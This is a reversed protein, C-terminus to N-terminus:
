LFVRSLMNLMRGEYSNGKSFIHPNHLFASRKKASSITDNANKEIFSSFKNCDSMVHLFRIHKTELINVKSILLCFRIILKQALMFASLRFFEQLVCAGLYIMCWVILTLFHGLQKNIKALFEQRKESDPPLLITPNQLIKLTFEM